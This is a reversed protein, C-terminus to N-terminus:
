VDSIKHGDRRRLRLICMIEMRAEANFYIVLVPTALVDLALIEIAVRDVVVVAAKNKLLAPVTVWLLYSFVTPLYLIVLTSAMLICYVLVKHRVLLRAKNMEDNGSNLLDQTACIYTKRYLIAIALNQSIFSITMTLIWISRQLPEDPFVGNSSPSTLFLWGSIGTQVVMTGIVIGFYLRSSPRHDTNRFVFFREVALLLNIGFVLILNVSNVFSSLRTAPLDPWLIRRLYKRSNSGSWIICVVLLALVIRDLRTTLLKRRAYIFTSVLVANVIFGSLFTPLILYMTFANGLPTEYPNDHPITANTTAGPSLSTTNTTGNNNLLM